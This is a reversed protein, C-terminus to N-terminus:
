CTARRVAISPRTAFDLRCVDNAAGIKIAPYLGGLKGIKVNVRRDNDMAERQIMRWTNQDQKLAARLAANPGYYDAAFQPMILHEITAEIFDGPELHTVGPPPVLDLTSNDTGENTTGHEAIWPGIKKGGLRASWNRIVISRNAYAGKENPARQAVAEHLSVWPVRGKAELPATRYVNGGWQTNWESLLGTENGLAMKRERAYSYTDAGIQLIVFRSFGMAKKVDLRLHYTGRVIDDTRALSATARQEIGDGIRGAYTVATLCPGQREYITRM